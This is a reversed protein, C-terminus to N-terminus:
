TWAGAPIAPRPAVVTRHRRYRGIGRELFLAVYQLADHIHSYENKLPKDGYREYRRDFIRKYKYEGNFGKILKTCEPDVQFAPKDGELRKMLLENVAGYRSDWDNSDPVEIPLGAEALVRVCTMGDSTSHGGGAPDGTGIIDAGPYNAFLFPKIKERVFTRTDMYEVLFEHKVNFLGNPLQQCVICASNQYGFDWGLIIPYSKVIQIPERAVHISPNWNIYVPRGDRVYGYKAHVNVDVWDEDHSLALDEYYTDALNPLNEAHVGRIPIGFKGDPHKALGSAQHFKELFLQGAKPHNPPYVHSDLELLKYLWHDTDPPNTDAIVGAWTAGGDKISPYRNTRGIADDFIKKSIEKLENFYVGTLELSLLHRADDPQDLALFIMEAQVTTGDGPPVNFLFTKRAIQYEGHVGDKIWEFFTKQTTDQLERYTNRVIAWRTKRIGKDNPAQMQSRRLLEMVCGVSKGSGWPGVVIRIMANSEMMARISPVYKTSYNIYFEPSITTQKQKQAM